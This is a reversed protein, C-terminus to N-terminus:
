FKSRSILEWGGNSRGTVAEYEWRRCGAFAAAGPSMGVFRDESRLRERRDGRM